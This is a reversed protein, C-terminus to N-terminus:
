DKLAFWAGGLVIVGGILWYATKSGRTAKTDSAGEDVPTEAQTSTQPAAQKAAQLMTASNVNIPAILAKNQEFARKAIELNSMPNQRITYRM